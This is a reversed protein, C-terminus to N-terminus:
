RTARAASRGENFYLHCTLCASQSESIGTEFTRELKTQMGNIYTGTNCVYTPIHAFKPNTFVWAASNYREKLM